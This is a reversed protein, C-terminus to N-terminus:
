SEEIQKPEPLTIQWLVDGSRFDLYTYGYIGGEFRGYIEWVYRSEALRYETQANPLVPGPLLRVVEQMPLLKQEKMAPRMLFKDAAWVPKKAKEIAAERTLGRDAYQMAVVKEQETWVYVANGAEDSGSFLFGQMGGTYPEASEIKSLVTKDLAMQAAAEAGTYQAYMIERVAFIGGTLLIVLIAGTIWLYKKFEKARLREKKM